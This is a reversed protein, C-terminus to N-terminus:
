LSGAVHDTPSPDKDKAEATQLLHSPKMYFCLMAIMLDTGWVTRANTFWVEAVAQADLQHASNEWTM